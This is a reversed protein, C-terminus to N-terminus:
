LNFHQRILDLDLKNLPIEREPHWMIGLIKHQKHYFAEINKDIDEALNILGTGLGNFPIGFNHFSNVNNLKIEIDQNLNRFIKHRSSVHGAVKTCTGSFYSNILQMGRCVGLVPYNLNIAVRLLEFEFRDRKESLEKLEFTGDEFEALSNGGSFILGDLDLSKIIDESDMGITMPIPIPLANVSMVLNLWNVDLCTLTEDYEPHKMLKQTVGIRNKYM